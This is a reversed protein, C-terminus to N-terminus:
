PAAPFEVRWLPDGGDAYQGTRLSSIAYDPLEKLALCTAGSRVGHPAFRFDRNDFGYEERGEPLDAADQPTLHLLFAAQTADPGCAAHRYILRNDWRYVEWGGGAGAPEGLEGALRAAYDDLNYPLRYITWRYEGPEYVGDDQGRHAAGAQLWGAVRRAPPLAAYDASHTIATDVPLPLPHQQLAALYYPRAPAEPPQLRMEYKRGYSRRLYANYYGSFGRATSDLTGPLHAQVYEGAEMLGTVRALLQAEAQRTSHQILTQWLFSYYNAAVFFVLFAALGLVAFNRLRPGGVACWQLLYKVGLALLLAFVPLLIYWYRLSVGWVISLTLFMAAFQGLLLLLLATEPNWQRKVAQIGLSLLAAAALLAFVATILPSTEVQFLGAITEAANAQLLPWTSSTTGYGLGNNSIAVSIRWCAAGFLLALPAGGLLLKWGAARGTGGGRGTRGTRGTRLIYWAYGFYALLLWGAVGLNIEKALALGAYGLGFGGYLLLSKRRSIGGPRATLALAAMWTCLGLFFVTYVEQPSLRAAPLNPFFGWIYLLFALPLLPALRGALRFVLRGERGAAANAPPRAPALRLM